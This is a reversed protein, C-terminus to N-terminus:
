VLFVASRCRNGATQARPVGCRLGPISGILICFIQEGSSGCGLAASGFEQVPARATLPLRPLRALAMWTLSFTGIGGDFAESIWTRAEKFNRGSSERVYIGDTSYLSRVRQIDDETLMRRHGTFTKYMVSAPDSSHELGLVHGVEHLAVSVLDLGVPPLGVSWTEAGGFHVDGSLDGGKPPPFFAHAAVSGRGDFPSGDGHDGRYWGIRIDGSSGVETFTLASVAAWRDFAMLVAAKADAPPVSTNINDFHYTLNVNTWRGGPGRDPCGCRFLQM